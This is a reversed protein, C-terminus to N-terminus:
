KAKYGTSNIARKIQEVDTQKADFQVRADGRKYSVYVNRVGPTQQLVARIPAECASCDMGEVQIIVSEISASAVQASTPATGPTAAVPPNKRLLAAAIQGVYYPSLAFALVTVSAIWLGVRGLRSTRKTACREGPECAQERRFYARYFGFALLLVALVLLYPRAAAFIGAAGFAGLGLVAFLLPGLCCLSAVLGAVLAGWITFQSETKEEVEM